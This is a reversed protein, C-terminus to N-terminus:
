IAVTYPKSGNESQAVRQVSITDAAYGYTFGLSEFDGEGNTM